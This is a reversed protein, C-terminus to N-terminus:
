NRVVGDANGSRPRAPRYVACERVREDRPAWPAGGKPSATTTSVAVVGDDGGGSRLTDAFRAGALAVGGGSGAAATPSAVEDAAAWAAPLAVARHPATTVHFVPDAVVLKAQWVARQEDRRRRADGEEVAAPVSAHVSRFAVGDPLRRHTGREVAGFLGSGRPKPATSTVFGAERAALAPDTSGTRVSASLSAPPPESPEGLSLPPCPPLSSAPPHALFCTFGRPSRWQARGTSDHRTLANAASAGGTPADGLTRSALEPAFSYAATADGAAAAVLSTVDHAGALAPPPTIARGTAADVLVFAGGSGGGTSASRHHHHHQHNTHWAAAAAASKLTDRRVSLATAPTGSGSVAGSCGPASRATLMLEYAANRQEDRITRSGVSRARRRSYALSQPQSQAAASSTPVSGDAIASDARQTSEVTGRGDSGGGFHAAILDIDASSPYLALRHAVAASPACLLDHLRQLAATAAAAAPAPLHAVVAAPALAADISTGLAVVRLDPGATGWLRHAFRETHRALAGSVNAAAATSLVTGLGGHPLGELLLVTRGGRSPEMETAEVLQVGTVVDAAVAAAQAVDPQSAPAAAAAVADVAEGGASTPMPACTATNVNAVADRVARLQVDAGPPLVLVARSFPAAAAADAAGSGDGSPLLLSADVLEARLKLLAPRYDLPARQLAQRAPDGPMTAAPPTVPVPVLQSTLELSAAPAAAAAAVAGDSGARAAALPLLLQELRFTAAAHNSRERAAAVYATTEAAYAMDAAWQADDVAGSGSSTSTGGSAAVAAYHRAREEPLLPWPVSRATVAGAASPDRDHVEVTLACTALVERLAAMHAPPLSGDHADVGGSSGGGAAAGLCVVAVHDWRCGGSDTVPASQTVAAGGSGCGGALAAPTRLVAFPQRNGMSGPAAYHERRLPLAAASRVTLRLPCLQQLLPPSVLVLPEVPVVTPAAAAAAKGGAPTATAAKKKPGAAAAAAATAPQSTVSSALEPPAPRQAAAVRVSVHLFALGPPPPSAPASAGYSGSLSGPPLQLAAELQALRCIREAGSGTNVDAPATGASSESTSTSPAPPAAPPTELQLLATAAAAAAGYTATVAGANALLPSCDLPLWAAYPEPTLAAPAPPVAPSAAAPASSAATAAPPAKASPPAAAPKKGAGVAAAEAGPGGGRPQRGVFVHLTHDAVLHSLFAADAAAIDVATRHRLLVPAPAPAAAGGGAAKAAGGGKGAGATATGRRAAADGANPGPLPVRTWVPGEAIVGGGSRVVDALHFRATPAWADDAEAAGALLAVVDVQLTAAHPADGPAAM